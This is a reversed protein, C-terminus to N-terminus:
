LVEVGSGAAPQCVYVEAALGTSAAYRPILHEAFADVQDSKVLGVVSGGFGGGMLRVGYCADHERSIQCLTDVDPVSIEYDNEISSQTQNLLEGANDLDHSELAAKMALVRANETIIHRARRYHVDDFKDKNADLLVMDADRLAKVGLAAAVAECQARREAYGSDALQRVKKTDIVVVAVDSPIKVPTTELTRCDLLMAANPIAAASAIQDLVGVPVGLFEHEIKVALLAKESQSRHESALALAMEVVAVGIAASSSVGAGMPINSGIVLDASPVDIGQQGLLWWIGRVHKVWEPFGDADREVAKSSFTVMEYGFDMSFVRVVDDHRPKLAIWIARNIALPLTFGDNYDTHSGILNARGPARVLLEPDTGFTTRFQEIVQQRM